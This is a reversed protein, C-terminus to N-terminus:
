NLFGQINHFLSKFLGRYVTFKMRAPVTDARTRQTCYTGVVNGTGHASLSHEGSHYGRGRACHRAYSTRWISISHIYFGWCHQHLEWSWWCTASPEQGQAVWLAIALPWGPWSGAMLWFPGPYLFGMLLIALWGRGQQSPTAPQLALPVQGKDFNCFIFIFRPFSGFGAHSIIHAGAYPLHKHTASTCM